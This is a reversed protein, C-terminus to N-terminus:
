RKGEMPMPSGSHGTQWSVKMCETTFMIQAPKASAVDISANPNAAIIQRVLDGYQGPTVPEALPVLFRYSPKEESHSYTTHWFYYFDSLFGCLAEFGGEQAGDLDLTIVSRNIVNVNKRYNDKLEGPLYSKENKKTGPTKLMTAIDGLTLAKSYTQPNTCESFEFSFTEEPTSM